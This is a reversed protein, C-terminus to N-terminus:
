FPLVTTKNTFLSPAPKEEDDKKKLSIDSDQTKLADKNTFLSPAANKDSVGSSNTNTTFKLLSEAQKLPEEKKEDLKLVEQSQTPPKM